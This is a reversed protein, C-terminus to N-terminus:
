GVVFLDACRLCLHWRTPSLACCHAPCVYGTSPETVWGFSHKSWDPDQIWVTVVKALCLVRRGSYEKAMIEYGRALLWNLDNLIGSGTDVLIITQAPKAEDLQLTTEAAAVLPHLAMILQVM